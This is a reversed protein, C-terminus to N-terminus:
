IKASAIGTAFEIAQMNMQSFDTKIRVSGNGTFINFINNKGVVNFHYQASPAFPSPSVRQVNSAFTPLGQSSSHATGATATNFSEVIAALQLLSSNQDAQLRQAMEQLQQLSTSQQREAQPPPRDTSSMQIFPAAYAAFLLLTLSYLAMIASADSNVLARVETCARAPMQIQRSLSIQIIRATPWEQRNRQNFSTREDSATHLM